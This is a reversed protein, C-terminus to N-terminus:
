VGFLGRTMEFIQWMEVQTIQRGFIIPRWLYGDWMNAVETNDIGVLFKLAAASDPNIHTGATVTLLNGNKYLAVDAGLRTAGLMWWTSITVEGNVSFTDQQTPGAQSTTLHIAGNADIYWYWGIVNTGKCMLYRSALADVYVWVVTSFAGTQFDLDTSEVAAVQMFDPNGPVFSLIPLNSLPWAAWTPAGTLTMTHDLATAPPRAIDHTLTGTGEYMPVDLLTQFYMPLNDYGKTM